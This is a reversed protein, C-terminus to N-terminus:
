QNVYSKPKHVVNILRPPVPYNHVPDKVRARYKKRPKKATSEATTSTAEPKRDDDGDDGDDEEEEEDDNSENQEKGDPQHQEERSLAAVRSYQAIAKAVLEKDDMERNM